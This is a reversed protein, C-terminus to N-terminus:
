RRRKIWKVILYISVVVIGVVGVVVMINSITNGGTNRVLPAALNLDKTPFYAIGFVILLLFVASLTVPVFYRSQFIEVLSGSFAPAPKKSSKEATGNIFAETIDSIEKPVKVKGPDFEMAEKLEMYASLCYRCSFLHKRKTEDLPQEGSFYAGLEYPSLCSKGHHSKKDMSYAIKLLKGLNM